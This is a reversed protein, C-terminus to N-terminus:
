YKEVNRIVVPIYMIAPILRDQVDMFEAGSPFLPAVMPIVNVIVSIAPVDDENWNCAEL